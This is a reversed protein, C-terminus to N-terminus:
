VGHRLLSVPPFVLPVCNAVPQECREYYSKKQAFGPATKKTKKTKEKSQAPPQHRGRAPSTRSFNLSTSDAEATNKFSRGAVGPVPKAANNPKIVGPSRSATGTTSNPKPDLLDNARGGAHLSLDHAKATPAFHRCKPKLDFTSANSTRSPPSQARLGASALFPSRFPASAFTNLPSATRLRNMPIEASSHRSPPQVAM